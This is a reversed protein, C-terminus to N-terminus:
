KDGKAEALKAAEEVWEEAVVDQWAKAGVLEELWVPDAEAIQEYTFIGAENLRKAFVSGIGKIKELRDSAKFIEKVIVQPEQGLAAELEAQLELVRNELHSRDNQLKVVSEETAALKAGSEDARSEAVILKDQLEQLDSANQKGGRRWFFFDILWEVVWGIILGLVIATFTTM